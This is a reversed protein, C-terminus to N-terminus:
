LQHDGGQPIVFIVLVDLHRSTGDEEVEGVRLIARLLVDLQPPLDNLHDEVAHLRELLHSYTCQGIM